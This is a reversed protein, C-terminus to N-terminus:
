TFGYRRDARQLALLDDVSWQDYAHEGYHVARLIGNPGILFDAPLGFIGGRPIGSLRPREKALNGRIAASLAAPKLVARLSTEVGYEHYLHKEPDGIVDFPFKGQYPLLESASSHFVVIEQMGAAAIEPYRQRFSQLHLNCIPCGAYRRFQLHVTRGWRNPVYVDMDHITKLSLRPVFGGFRLVNRAVM